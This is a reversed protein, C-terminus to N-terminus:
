KLTRLADAYLDDSIRRTRREPWGFDNTVVPISRGGDSSVNTFPRTPTHVSAQADKIIPTSDKETGTFSTIFHDPSRLGDQINSQGSGSGSGSLRTQDLIELTM